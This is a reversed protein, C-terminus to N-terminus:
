EIKLDLRLLVFYVHPFAVSFSGPAFDVDDLRSCLALIFSDCVCWQRM